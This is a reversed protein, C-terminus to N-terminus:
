ESSVPVHVRVPIVARARLVCVGLSLSFDAACIFVNGKLRAGLNRKELIAAGHFLAASNVFYSSLLLCLVLWDFTSSPRSYVIAVPIFSYIVFDFIIDLFGGSRTLL